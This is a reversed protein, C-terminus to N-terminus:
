VRLFVFENLVTQLLMYIWLFLSLPTEFQAKIVLLRGPIAQKIEYSIPLFFFFFKKAFPIAVGGKTIAGWGGM